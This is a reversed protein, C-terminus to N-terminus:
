AATLDLRTLRDVVVTTGTLGFPWFRVTYQGPVGSMETVEGRTGREILIGARRVDHTAVIPIPVRTIM